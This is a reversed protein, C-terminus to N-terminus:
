GGMVAVPRMIRRRQSPWPRSAIFDPGHAGRIGLADGGEFVPDIVRGFTVALHYGADGRKLIMEDIELGGRFGALSEFQRRHCLAMGDWEQACPAEWRARLRHRPM